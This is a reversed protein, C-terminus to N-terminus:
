EGSEYDTVLKSKKGFLWGHWCDLYVKYINLDWQVRRYIKLDLCVVRNIKLDFQVVRYIKLDLQVVRYIKLIM